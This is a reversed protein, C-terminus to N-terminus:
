DNHHCYCSFCMERGCEREVRSLRKGCDLCRGVYCQCDYQVRKCKECHPLSADSM